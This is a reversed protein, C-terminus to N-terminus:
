APLRYRAIRARGVAALQLPLVALCAAERLLLSLPRPTTVAAASLRPGCPGLARRVLRVARRGHWSSTVLVVEHAAIARATAAVNIANGVTHRAGHDLLLQVDPRPWARAMLSAETEARGHRAWGSLLVVDTPRAISAAVALRAACVSHLGSEGRPSYGLVAVLRGGPPQEARPQTM